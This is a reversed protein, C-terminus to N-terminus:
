VEDKDKDEDEVENGCDIGLYQEVDKTRDVTGLLPLTPVHHSLIIARAVEISNRAYISM